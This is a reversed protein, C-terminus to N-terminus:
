DSCSGAPKPSGSLQQREDETSRRFRLLVSAIGALAVGFVMAASAAGVPRVLEAAPQLGFPNTAPLVMRSDPGELQGPTLATSVSWLVLVAAELWALPRWRASPLRRNPFLRFVFPLLGLSVDQVWHGFWVAVVGGPLLGPDVVLADVGYLWYKACGRAESV